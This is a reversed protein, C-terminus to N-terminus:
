RGQGVRVAEVDTLQANAPGTPLIRSVVAAERARAGPQASTHLPGAMSRLLQGLCM